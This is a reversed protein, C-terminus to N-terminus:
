ATHRTTSHQKKENPDAVILWGSAGALVNLKLPTFSWWRQDTGVTQQSKDAGGLASEVRNAKAAGHHDSASRAELALFAPQRFFFDFDEM